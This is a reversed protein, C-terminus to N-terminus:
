MMSPEVAGLGKLQCRVSGKSGQKKITRVPHVSVRVPTGSLMEMYLVHVLKRAINQAQM